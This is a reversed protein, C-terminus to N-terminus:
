KSLNRQPQLIINNNTDKIQVLTFKNPNYIYNLFPYLDDYEIFDLMPILYVPIRIKKAFNFFNIGISKSLNELHIRLFYIATINNWKSALNLFFIIAFPGFKNFELCHRKNSIIFQIFYNQHRSTDVLKIDQNNTKLYGHGKIHEALQLMFRCNFHNIRNNPDNLDNKIEQFSQFPM